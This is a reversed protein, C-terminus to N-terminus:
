NQPLALGVVMPPMKLMRYRVHKLLHPIDFDPPLAAESANRTSKERLICYEM